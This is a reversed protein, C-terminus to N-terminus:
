LSSSSPTVDWTKLWNRPEPGKQTATAEVTASDLM